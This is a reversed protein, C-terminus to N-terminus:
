NAFFAELALTIEPVAASALTGGPGHLSHETFGGEKPQRYVEIKKEPGLVLWREKV